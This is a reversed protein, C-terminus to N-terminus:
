NSYPALEVKPVGRRPKMREAKLKAKNIDSDPYDSESDPLIMNRPQNLMPIGEDDTMDIEKLPIPYDLENM